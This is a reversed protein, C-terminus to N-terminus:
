IEERTKTGRRLRKINDEMEEEEEEEEEGEFKRSRPVRYTINAPQPISLSDGIRIARARARCDRLETASMFAARNIEVEGRGGGGANSWRRRAFVPM